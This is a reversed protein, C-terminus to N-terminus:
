TKVTRDFLNGYHARPVWGSMAAVSWVLGISVVVAIVIRTCM